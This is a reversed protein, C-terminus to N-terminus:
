RTFPALQDAGDFGALLEHGGAKNQLLKQLAKGSRLVTHLDEIPERRQREQNSVPSVVDVCGFQSVFEPAAANLDAGDLRQQRLETQAVAKGHQRSISIKAIDGPM